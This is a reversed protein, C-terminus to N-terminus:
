GGRLIRAIRATESDMQRLRRRRRIGTPIISHIRQRLLRLENTTPTAEIMEPVFINGHRTVVPSTTETSSSSSSSSFSSWEEVFHDEYRLPAHYRTTSLPVIESTTDKRSMDFREFDSMVINGHRTIRVKGPLHHEVGLRPPAKHSESLYTLSLDKKNFERSPEISFNSLVISGHRTIHTKEPLMTYHHEYELSQKTKVGCARDILMDLESLQSRLDAFTRHPVLSPTEAIWTKISDKITLNTSIKEEKTSVQHHTFTEEKEEQEEEISEPPINSTITKISDRTSSTTDEGSIVIPFELSETEFKIKDENEELDLGFYTMGGGIQDQELEEDQHLELLEELLDFELLEGEKTEEEEEEKEELARLNMKKVVDRRKEKLVREVSEVCLSADEAADIAVASAAYAMHAVESLNKNMDKVIEEETTERVIDDVEKCSDTDDDEVFCMSVEINGCSSPPPVSSSESHFPHARVDFRGSIKRSSGLLSALVIRCTGIIRQTKSDCVHLLACEEKLYRETVHVPIKVEKTEVRCHRNFVSIRTFTEIDSLKACSWILFEENWKMDSVRVQLIQLKPNKMEEEEEEETKKKKKVQLSSSTRLQFRMRLKMRKVEDGGGDDDDDDDDDHDSWKVPLDFTKSFDHRQKAENVFRELDNKSLIAQGSIKSKVDNRKMDSTCILELKLGNRVEDRPWVEPLPSVQVHRTISYAASHRSKTNLSKDRDWWLIHRAGGYKYRVYTGWMEKSRSRFSNEITVTVVHEQTPIDNDDQVFLVEDVTDVLSQIWNTNSIPSSSSSSPSSSSFDSSSIDKEPSSPSRASHFDPISQKGKVDEEVRRVTTRLSSIRKSVVIRRESMWRQACRKLRSTTYRTKRITELQNAYGLAVIGRVTGVVAGTMPDEVSGRKWEVVSPVARNKSFMVLDSLDVHALGLLVTENEEEDKEEGDIWIELVLSRHRMYQFMDENADCHETMESNMPFYTHDDAERQQMFPNDGLHLDNMVVEASADQNRTMSSMEFRVPKEEKSVFSCYVVRLRPPASLKKDEDKNKRLMSMSARLARSDISVGDIHVLLECSKNLFQQTDPSPRWRTFRSSRFDQARSALSAKSDSEFVKSAHRLCSISISVSGCLTTDEEDTTSFVPISCTLSMGKSLLVRNLDVHGVAVTEEDRVFSIRLKGSKQWLEAMEQDFLLPFVRQHDISVRSTKDDDDDDDDDVDVKQASPMVITTSDSPESTPLNYQVHIRRRSSSFGQILLLHSISVKVAYVHVLRESIDELLNALPLVNSPLASTQLLTTMILNEDNDDDQSSSSLMNYNEEEEEEEEEEQKYPVHQQAEVMERQLKTGRALLKEIEQYSDDNSAYQIIPSSSSSINSNEIPSSSSINSKPSSTSTSSSSSSSRPHTPRPMPRPTVTHPVENKKLTTYIKEELTRRVVKGSKVCRRCTCKSDHTCEENLDMM